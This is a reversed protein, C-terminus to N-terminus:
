FTAFVGARLNSTVITKGIGMEILLAMGCSNLRGDFVGFKNCVFTFARKRYDYSAAKIPMMLEIHENMATRLHAAPTSELRRIQRRESSLGEAPVQQM